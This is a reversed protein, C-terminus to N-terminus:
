HTEHAAPRRGPDPAADPGALISAFSRVFSHLDGQWRASVYNGDRVVWAPRSDAATDRFLGSLKRFRDPTGAPVDLFCGPSALARTVEAEVSRYGAPEGPRELYTRYYGPDWVRGAFKMLTWATKELRWTLGTTRRGFLVSKGTVASRSRAALVVGHCIAAVPKGSDFFDGVFRQLQPDELYECMGRACHGGPLLLGAYDAVRLEAFRLPASYAPDRLMRVHARRATGNARLALGLLRIKKLVPVCGWLDLGEGSLMRPDPASPQGDPTAFRVRYGAETLLQWSLAAESPDYDRRPLPILVTSAHCPGM